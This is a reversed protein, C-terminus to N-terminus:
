STLNLLGGGGSINTFLSVLHANSSGASTSGGVAELDVKILYQEIFKIAYNTNELPKLFSLNEASGSTGTLASKQEELITNQINLTYQEAKIRSLTSGVSFLADNLLEERDEATAGSVALYQLSSLSSEFNDKFDNQADVTIVTGLTGLTVKLDSAFEELLNDGSEGAQEIINDLDSRIQRIEADISGLPDAINAAFDFVRRDTVLNDKLESLADTFTTDVDSIIGNANAASLTTPLAALIDANLTGGRADISKGSNADAEYILTGSTLLNDFTYTSVGDSASGAENILASLEDYKAGYQTNLETIDADDQQAEFALARIESLVSAADALRTLADDVASVGQSLEQSNLTYGFNVDDISNTFSSGNVANQIEASAFASEADDFISEAAAIGSSLSGLAVSQFATNADDLDSLFTSLDYSSTVVATGESDVATTVKSSPLADIGSGGDGAPVFLNETTGSTSDIYNASKITGDAATIESVLDAFEAKLSDLEDQDEVDAAADFIENLRTLKPDTDALAQDAAAILGQQRILEPIAAEQVPIESALVGGPDTVNDFDQLRIRLDELQEQLSTLEISANTTAALGSKLEALDDNVQDLQTKSANEEDRDLTNLKDFDLKADLLAEQKLVSQNAIEAPLGLATTVISRLAIDGLVELSSDVENIKRLFYLAERAAPNENGIQIEFANTLYKDIVETQTTADSFKSVGENAVNFFSALEAYRPDALRNAYSNPDDKDSNFIAKLKGPNGIESELGFATLVFELAKRDELLDDLSSIENASEQFNSINKQVDARNYFALRAAEPDAKYKAFAAVGTTSYSSSASGGLIALAVSANSM